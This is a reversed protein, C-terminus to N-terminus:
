RPKRGTTKNYGRGNHHLLARTWTHLVSIVGIERGVYRLDRALKALSSADAHMLIGRLKVQNARVIDHREKPLTFVLHFYTAPLLEKRRAKLWRRTDRGHSSAESTSATM